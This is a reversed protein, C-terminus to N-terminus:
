RPSELHAATPFAARLRNQEAKEKASLGHNMERINLEALREQKEQGEASRTVGAGFAETSYADLIDGYVSRFLM